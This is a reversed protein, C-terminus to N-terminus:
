PAAICDKLFSTKEAGVLKKAKVAKLCATRKAHKAAADSSPPSAAAAAAAPTATGPANSGPAVTGPADGHLAPPAAAFSCAVPLLSLCVAAAVASFRM